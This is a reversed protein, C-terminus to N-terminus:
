DGIKKPDKYKQSLFYDRHLKQLLMAFQEINPNKLIQLLDYQIQVVHSKSRFLEDRKIRYYQKSQRIKLETDDLHESIKKQAESEDILEKYMVKVNQDLQQYHQMLPQKEDVLTTVRYDYVAKFNQLHHNKNRYNKIEQEKKNIQDEKENLQNIMEQNKGEFNKRESELHDIQTQTEKILSDLELKRQTFRECEKGYKTNSSRLEESKKIQIDREEELQKKTQNLLIEFEKESQAFVEKFKKEDLKMNNQAKMFRDYLEKYKNNFDAEVDELVKRYQVRIADLEKVQKDETSKLHNKLRDSEEYLKLLNNSTQDDMNEVQQKHNAILQHHDKELQSLQNTQDEMQMSSQQKEQAIQQNNNEELM